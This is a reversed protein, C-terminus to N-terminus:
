PVESVEILAYIIAVPRRTAVETAYVAGVYLGPNIGQVTRRSQGRGLDVLTVEVQDGQPSLQAQVHASADVSRPGVAHSGGTGNGGVLYLDTVTMTVGPPLFLATPAELPGAFETDGDVVFLLTPLQRESHSVGQCPTAALVTWEDLTGAMDKMLLSSDYAGSRMQDLARSWRGSQSLWFTSTAQLMGSWARTVTSVDPAPTGATSDPSPTAM